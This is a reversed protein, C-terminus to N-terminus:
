DRHGGGGGLAAGFFADVRRVYEEAVKGAARAHGVEPVVWLEASEGAAAFLAHGEAVPILRDREGHVILLPRPAIRGIHDIPRMERIRAGLLLEGFRVILPAFPFAPLRYLVRLGGVVISELSTFGSDAVVAGRDGAGRAAAIVTAAAGMSMGLAGIGCGALEPRRRLYRAAAVVDRAEHYGISSRRGESGGHARFDFLLVAYGARAASRALDVLDVRTMGFGHGLAIAGRPAPHGFLWGHLTVGDDARFRVDDILTGLASGPAHGLPRARTIFHAMVAAAAVTGGVVGARGWVGCGGSWGAEEDVRVGM